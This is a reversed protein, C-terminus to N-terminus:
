TVHPISEVARSVNAPKPRTHSDLPSSELFHWNCSCSLEWPPTTCHFECILFAALDARLSECTSSRFELSRWLPSCFTSSRPPRLNSARVEETWLCFSAPFQRCLPSFLISQVAWSPCLNAGGEREGLLQLSPYIRSARDALIGAIRHRYTLRDTLSPWGLASTGSESGEHGCVMHKSETAVFVPPSPSGSRREM